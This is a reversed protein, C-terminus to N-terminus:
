VARALFPDAQSERDILLRKPLSGDQLLRQLEARFQRFTYLEGLFEIRRSALVKVSRATMEPAGEHEGLKIPVGPFFIHAYFLMLFMVLLFFVSAFPAADVGGRFIKTNRSYRM